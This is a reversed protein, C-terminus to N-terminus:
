KIIDRHCQICNVLYKQFEDEVLRNEEGVFLFFFLESSHNISQQKNETCSRENLIYIPAEEETVDAIDKNLIFKREKNRLVDAFINQQMDDLMAALVKFQAASHSM